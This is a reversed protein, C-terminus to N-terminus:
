VGPRGARQRTCEVPDERLLCLNTLSLSNLFSRMSQCSNSNRSLVFHSCNGDVKPQVFLVNSDESAPEPEIVWRLHFSGSEAM